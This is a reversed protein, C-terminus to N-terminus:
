SNDEASRAIIHTPLGDISFQNKQEWYNRLGHDGLRSAWAILEDRPGEYTYCPVGFGCSTQVREIDLLFIQRAGPAPAFLPFLTGWESDGRHVATAAGYLRLITPDGSFACFMLTMRGNEQVHAATENGSGTLNLWALRNRDIIRLTDLGKPSVNVWSEATATGVFFVQQTAIFQQHDETLGPYIRAM